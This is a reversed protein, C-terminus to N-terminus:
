EKVNLIQQCRSCLGRTDSEVDWQWCRPCKIGQAHEVRAFLGKLTTEALDGKSQVFECQSIICLEKFFAEKRQGSKELDAFFDNLITQQQEPLAFFLMVRAELSHKILGKERQIEIAKLIADRVNFILKWQAAREAVFDLANIADATEQIHGRAPYWDLAPLEQKVQVRLYDWVDHLENFQQLHISETKNKQYHDSLQEATFSLIPAILKTLTDLIYWCVTQASRRAHGNAKETYLRDKIIDLYFSSLEKTCYDALSHFVATSDANAYSAQIKINLYFLTELAYRDLLPMAAIAVKDKQADFDYLNSLLFRCTNRIKRYVEAINTLLAPSVIADSSYDISSAWLRLGDTGFKEILDMPAVVNGLSKSMKYGKEDVTFGHSIFSRTCAQDELVLSTLLSSQFWARHQDIGELYADAPFGLEPNQYLVAYHSVGSEFWVDLIDEEKEFDLNSCQPCSINAVPLDKISVDDWYEIGHQEIGKAVFEILEQSTYGYDCNKCL